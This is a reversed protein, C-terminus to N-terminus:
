AACPVASCVDWILRCGNVQIILEVVDGLDEVDDQLGQRLERDEEEVEADERALPEPEERVDGYAPHDAVCDGEDEDDGELARGDVGDPVDGHM